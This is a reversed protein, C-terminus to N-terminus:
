SNQVKEIMHGYREHRYEELIQKFVEELRSKRREELIQRRADLVREFVDKDLFARGELIVPKVEDGNIVPIGWEEVAEVIQESPNGLAIIAKINLSKLRKLAKNSYPAINYVLVVDDEKLDSPINSVTLTNMVAAELIEGHLAKSAVERWMMALEEAKAVDKRLSAVEDELAAVRDLLNAVLRDRRFRAEQEDVLRVLRRWADKLDEELLRVRHRLDANELELERIRRSLEQIRRVDAPRREQEVRTLVEVRPKPEPATALTEVIERISKGKVIMAKAENLSVHLGLEELRKELRSFKPKFSLYAKVAAALADRQHSDKVKIVGNLRAEYEQAIRRKEGVSLTYPPEFLVASLSTAIKKVYEPAPTVDSAVVIPRGLETLLRILQNRSLGRRSTLLVPRGTLTLAAVGTDIGPDVGVILYRQSLRAAGRDVLAPPSFELDRKVVPIVSIQVDHGKKPKVLGYLQNRPAYVIFLSRKLGYRTRSIFLDYELGARNLEEKIERTIRLILGEVNRRFRESSMGGSGPSRGRSVIIRTEEEFVEVYSGIGLLGLRAITKAAELPPLKGGRSLGLEEAIEELKCDSGRIKTVQILRPIKEFSSLFGALSNKDPALEFVNDVALIDPRYKRIIEMLGSLSINELSEVQKVGRLVVVAYRPQTESSPAYGPLIDVGVVV